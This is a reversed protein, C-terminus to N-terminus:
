GIKTFTKASATWAATDGASVTTLGEANIMKVLEASNVASLKGV